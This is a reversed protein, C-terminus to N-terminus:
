EIGRDLRGIRVAAVVWAAVRGGTRELENPGRTPLPFPRGMRVVAREPPHTIQPRDLLLVKEAL